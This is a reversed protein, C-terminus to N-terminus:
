LLFGALEESAFEKGVEEQLLEWLEKLSVTQTRARIQDRLDQLHRKLDAPPLPLPLIRQCDLVVRDPALAQKKGDEDIIEVQAKGSPTTIRQVVGLVLRGRERYIIVTGSRMSINATKRETRALSSSGGYGQM